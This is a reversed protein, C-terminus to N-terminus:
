ATDHQQEEACLSLAPGSDEATAFASRDRAMPTIGEINPLQQRRNNLVALAVRAPSGPQRM